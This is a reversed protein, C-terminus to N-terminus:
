PTEPKKAPPPALFEPPHHGWESIHDYTTPTWTADDVQRGGCGFEFQFGSPTKAYFSFMRDNPHKGLTQVIRLGAKLTRDFALGVDDMSRTEVMFHHLRKRQRDGFAVSHHRANTHFFAIDVKFGHIECRIYDSLRFGLVDQYFKASEAQSNASLVLHGLGQEDAVFGSRVVSSQFPERALAPGCYIESPIGAPDSYCLLRAVQRLDREEPTGERVAVGAARLREGITLLTAEDPAEWGLCALDDSAGPTVFLRQAHGDMRLAFGGDGRRSALGLGLVKTGFAEWAALDKVEFHLYGLQAVSKM